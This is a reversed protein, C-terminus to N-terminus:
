IDAWLLLIIHYITDIIQNEDYYVTWKVGCTPYIINRILLIISISDVM